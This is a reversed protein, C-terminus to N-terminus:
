LSQLGQWKNVWVHRHHPRFEGHVVVLECLWVRLAWRHFCLELLIRSKTGLFMRRTTNKKKKRESNWKEEM